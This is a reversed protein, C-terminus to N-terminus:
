MKVIKSRKPRIIVDNFENGLKKLTLDIPNVNLKKALDPIMGEDIVRITHNTYREGPEGALGCTDFSLIELLERGHYVGVNVRM